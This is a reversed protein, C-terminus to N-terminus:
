FVFLTHGHWCFVGHDTEGIIIINKNEWSSESKSFMWVQDLMQM